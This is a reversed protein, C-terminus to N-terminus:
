VIATSGQTYQQAVANFDGVALGYPTSGASYATLAQLTGDGNGLLIDVKGSSTNLTVVDLNGDNDFDGVAVYNSIGGASYDQKAQFTGDGNGM